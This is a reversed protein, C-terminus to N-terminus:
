KKMSWLGVTNGESDQFLAIFGCEGEKIPMVPLLIKVGAQAIEEVLPSLQESLNLYLVSGHASPQMMEHKVLGISAAEKDETELIAMEMENMVERKFSVGFHKGYFAVARDMNEVPIEGWVLPAKHLM